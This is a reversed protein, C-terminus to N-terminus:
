DFDSGSDDDFNDDAPAQQNRGLTALMQEKLTRTEKPVSVAPKEPPKKSKPPSKKPPPKKPPSKKTTKKRSSKKTTKKKKPPPAKEDDQDNKKRKKRKTPKQAKAKRKKKAGTFDKLNKAIEGLFDMTKENELVSKLHGEEIMSNQIQGVFDDDQMVAKLQSRPWQLRKKKPM